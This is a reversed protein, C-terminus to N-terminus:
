VDVISLIRRVHRKLRRLTRKRREAEETAEVARDFAVLDLPKSEGRQQKEKEAEWDAFLQPYLEPSLHGEWSSRLISCDKWKVLYWVAGDRWIDETLIKEPSHRQGDDTENSAISEADDSPTDDYIEPLFHAHPLPQDATAM